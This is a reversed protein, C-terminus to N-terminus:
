CHLSLEMVTIISGINAKIINHYHSYITNEWINYQSFIYIYYIEYIIYHM